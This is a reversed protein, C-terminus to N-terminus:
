RALGAAARAEAVALDARTEASLRECLARILEPRSARGLEEALCSPVHAGQSPFFRWSSPEMFEVVIGVSLGNYYAIGRDIALGEHGSSLKLM